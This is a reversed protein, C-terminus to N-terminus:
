DEISYVTRYEATEHTGIPMNNEDVEIFRRKIMTQKRKLSPMSPNACIAFNLGDCYQHSRYNKRHAEAMYGMTAISMQVSNREDTDGGMLAAYQSATLGPRSKILRTLEDLYNRRTVDKTVRLNAIAQALERIQSDLLNRESFYNTM